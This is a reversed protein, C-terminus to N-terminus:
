SPSMQASEKVELVLGKIGILCSIGRHYLQLKQNIPMHTM